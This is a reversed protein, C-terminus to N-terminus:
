RDPASTDSAVLKPGRYTGYLLLTMIWALVSLIAWVVYLATGEPGFALLWAGIFPLSVVVSAAVRAWALLRATLGHEGTRVILVTVVAVFALLMAAVDISPRERSSGPVVADLLDALTRDDSPFLVGLRLATATLVVATVASAALSARL